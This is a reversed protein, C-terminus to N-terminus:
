EPVLRIAHGGTPELCRTRLLAPEELSRSDGRIRDVNRPAKVAPFFLDVRTGEGPSSTVRMHGKVQRMLDCVQPLGLGTGREGKTTFFPEFIRAALQADIGHGNDEVSVRVFIRNGTPGPSASPAVYKGTSIIVEGGMPAADRANMVLNLIAAQFQTADLMCNPINCGLQMSLRVSPGAGYRFFVEFDKLLDNAGESRAETQQERAFAVLTAALRLGHGVGHRARAISRQVTEPAGANLEALQLGVDIVSLVNVLDHAVGSTMQGVSALRQASGTRQDTTMDLEFTNVHPLAHRKGRSRTSAPMTTM